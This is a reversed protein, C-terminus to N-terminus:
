REKKLFGQNVMEEVIMRFTPVASQSAFHVFGKPNPEIVLVGITYKHGKKDNVFGFFSSNYSSIYKGRKTRQATGTKGGIILGDIKAFRGTGRNVVSQLISNMIYATKKSLVRHPKIPEILEYEGKTIVKTNAIKPSVAKGDNNFVNYAKLLQFFNVRIKYGYSLNALIVSNKLDIVNPISGTLEFSLDIGSKKSFGFKEFGDILMLPNTRKSLEIMGINSSHVIVDKASLSLYKHEDTVIHGNSLKYKGNHTNIMEDIKVKKNKLLISFFIPKIVSGPEYIYRIASITLAEINEKHQPNYRRSSAVSLLKGSKSDMVAAIIEKAQLKEKQIDLIYELRKQLGLDINTIIDFGDEKKTLHNNKDRIIISNKDRQGILIKDSGNALFNNYYDELGYKGYPKGNKDYYVYGLYPELTDELPYDRMKKYETIDLSKVIGGKKLHRFVKLRMLDYKLEKLFKAQTATIKNTLIIKKSDELLKEKISSRDMGTYKSFLDIFIDVKQPDLYKKYIIVQYLTKSLALLFFDKTKIAGRIGYNTTLNIELKPIKKDSRKISFITFILFVTILSIIFFAISIKVKKNTEYDMIM